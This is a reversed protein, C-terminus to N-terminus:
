PLDLVDQMRYRGPPRGALWRAAAVAGDAFIGRHEARHALRVQEGAGLFLVEHDGAITGGRVAAFGIAGDPRAGGPDDRRVSNLAVGRAGAAAEGLLLATGSPADVKARHHAEVIEIDWGAGLRKAAEAVLASLLTIGLSTNGTQLVAIRLAADDIADHDADSLGTTGILLACGAGIAAALSAPLADPRSFDILVDVEHAIAALDDGRGATATVLAPAAARIAQGMRGGAGILGIRPAVEAPPM